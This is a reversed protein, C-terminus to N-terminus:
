IREIRKEGFLGYPRILLVAVMVLMAMTTAFEYHIAPEVYKAAMIELVGLLVGGVLAGGISEMGGLLIVPFGKMLGFQGIEPNVSYAAGYLIGSAVAIGSTLIWSLLFIRKVDIGLSQSVHLDEAVCKMALGSKTYRFLVVMGAFLVIAAGFSYVLRQNVQVAGVGVLGLSFMDLAKDKGEWVVGIVADILVAVVLTLIFITMPNHGIMPRAIFYYLLVGVVAGFALALVFGLWAPLGMATIVEYGMYAGLVVVGGYALNVIRTAKYLMVLGLALLAYIGGVLLGTLLTEAFATM